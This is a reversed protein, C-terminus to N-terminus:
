NKFENFHNLLLNQWSNIQEKVDFERARRISINKDFMIENKMIKKMAEMLDQLNDSKVVLGMKEQVFENVGGSNFAVIPKGLAAAEIMVLPFPDERSTLVLGDAVSLYDYYDDSKPGLLLVNRINSFKLEQEVYYSYGSSGPGLWILLIDKDFHKAIASIIDTGKRYAVAGSMIWIFSSRNLGIKDRIDQVDSHKKKISEIEVCEYQLAVNKGGMIKLKDCVLQSCGILINAKEIMNKM